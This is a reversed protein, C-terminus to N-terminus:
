NAVTSNEKESFKEQSRPSRAAFRYLIAAIILFAPMWWAASPANGLAFSLAGMVPGLLAARTWNMKDSQTVFEAHLYWIVPGGLAIAVAVAPILGAFRTKGAAWVWIALTLLWLSVYAEALVWQAPATDALLGALKAMPWSAAIAIVVNRRSNLLLPALFAAAAVQVVLMVALATEEAAPPYGVALPVRFASLSLAGTQVGLWVALAVGSARNGSM